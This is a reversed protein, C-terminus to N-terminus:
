VGTREDSLNLIAESWRQMVERRRDLLDSRQYTREVKNGVLHDLSMEALTWDQATVEAWTKFSARFGHPRYPLGRRKLIAAMTMDSIPKGRPGCFLFGNRALPRALDVVRQAEDSLPIRFERSSKMNAAPIVWTDGDFQGIHALRVPTGRSATLILLRMALAGASTDLTAYFALVDQWDMSPINTVKHRQNGLAVRVRPVIRTDLEPLETEAYRMVKGLRDLGKAAASTKTRWIPDFVAKIESFDLARIDMDGLKPIVHVKVPSLWRGSRGSDKLDHRNAKM